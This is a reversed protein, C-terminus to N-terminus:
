EFVDNLHPVDWIYFGTDVMRDSITFWNYGNDISYYINILENGLNKSEWIIQTKEGGSFITNEKPSLVKIEPGDIIFNKKTIGRLSADFNEIKLLCNKSNVAPVDWIYSGDNETISVLDWNLGDNSSFYIKVKQNKDIKRGAKWEITYSQSIKLKEKNRPSKIKITSSAFSFSLFFIFSIYIYHNKIIQEKFFLYLINNIIKFKLQILCFNWLIM